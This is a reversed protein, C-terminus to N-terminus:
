WYLVRRLRLIYVVDCRVIESTTLQSVIPLMLVESVPNVNSNYAPLIWKATNPFSNVLEPNVCQSRPVPNSYLCLSPATLISRSSDKLNNHSTKSLFRLILIIFQPYRTLLTAFSSSQYHLVILSSLFSHDNKHVSSTHVSSVVLEKLYNYM